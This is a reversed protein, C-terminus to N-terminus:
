KRGVKNLESIYDFPRAKLGPRFELMFCARPSHQELPSPRFEAPLHQEWSQWRLGQDGKLAQHATVNIPHAWGWLDQGEGHGQEWGRPDQCEGQWGPVCM